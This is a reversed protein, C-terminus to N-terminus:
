RLEIPPQNTWIEYAQRNLGPAIWLRSGPANPDETDRPRLLIWNPGTRPLFGDPQFRLIPRSAIPTERIDLSGESQLLPAIQVELEIDEALSFELARRDDELIARTTVPSGLEMTALSGARSGSPATSWTPDAMLGYRRGPLDLWVIMPIGETVARDQAHRTIALLRYAEGDLNRGRFFRGLAPSSVALVAALIAMVLILEILTFAGRTPATRDPGSRPPRSQRAAFGRTGRVLVRGARPDWSGEHEKANM